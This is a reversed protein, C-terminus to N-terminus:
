YYTSIKGAIANDEDNHANIQAHGFGKVLQENLVM